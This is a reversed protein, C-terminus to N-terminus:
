CNSVFINLLKFCIHVNCVTGGVQVVSFHRLLCNKMAQSSSKEYDSKFFVIRGASFKNNCQLHAVCVDRWSFVYQRITFLCDLNYILLQLDITFLCDLCGGLQGDRECRQRVCWPWQGSGICLASSM